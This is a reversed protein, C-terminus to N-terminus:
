NELNIEIADIERKEIDNIVHIEISKLQSYEYITEEVYKQLDYNEISIIYQKTFVDHWIFEHKEQVIINIKNLELKLYFRINDNNAINLKKKYM